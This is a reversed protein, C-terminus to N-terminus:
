GKVRLAFVSHAHKDPKSKRGGFRIKLFAIRPAIRKTTPSSWVRQDVLRNRSEGKAEVVVECLTRRCMRGGEMM